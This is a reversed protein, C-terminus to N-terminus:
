YTVGLTRLFAMPNAASYVDGPTTGAPYYEFHLHSGFSRGTNGVYGILQGAKVAEGPSVVRRSMHAYLTAGGNSHQIVVNTGAWSGATPSLVIGSAAAYIPTGTPAPFDQGTHYRSWSGTAGFSAGVRYNSTVPKAGGQSTLAAVDDASMSSFEASHGAEAAIRAAEEMKLRAEEAEQQLKEEQAKVLEMDQIVLREREDASLSAQGEYAQSVTDEIVDERERVNDDAVVNALGSRVANRSVSESRDAFGHEASNVAAAPIALDQSVYPSDLDEGGDRATLAFGFLTAAVVAGALVSAVASRGLKHSRGRRAKGANSELHIEIDMSEGSSDSM